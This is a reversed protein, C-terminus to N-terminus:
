SACCLSLSKVHEHLKTRQNKDHHMHISPCRSSDSVARKPPVVIEWIFTQFLIKWMLYLVFMRLVFEICRM